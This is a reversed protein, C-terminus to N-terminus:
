GGTANKIWDKFKRDKWTSDHLINRQITCPSVNSKATPIHLPLNNPLPLSLKPATLQQLYLLHQNLLMSGKIKRIFPTYEIREDYANKYCTASAMHTTASHKVDDIWQTEDPSPPPEPDIPNIANKQQPSPPEPEIKWVKNM